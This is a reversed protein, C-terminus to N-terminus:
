WSWRRWCCASWASGGTCIGRRTAILGVQLAFLAFWLTMVVGHVHLQTSLTPTDFLVKLYFTRAFGAFVIAVIALAAWAYLPGGRVVRSNAM